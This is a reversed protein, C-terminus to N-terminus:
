HMDDNYEICSKLLTSTLFLSKAQWLKQLICKTSM